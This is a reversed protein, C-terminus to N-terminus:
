YESKVMRKLLDLDCRKPCEANKTADIVEMDTISKNWRKGTTPSTYTVNYRGYGVLEFDFDALRTKM